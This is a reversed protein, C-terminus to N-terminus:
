ESRKKIRKWWFEIEGDCSGAQRDQAFRRELAFARRRSVQLLPQPWSHRAQLGSRSWPGIASAPAARNVDALSFLIDTVNIALILAFGPESCSSSFAKRSM